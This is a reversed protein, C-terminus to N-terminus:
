RIRGSQAKLKDVINQSSYNRNPQRLIWKNFQSASFGDTKKMDLWTDVYAKLAQQGFPMAFALHDVGLTPYSKAIAFEPHQQKWALAEERSWLLADFSPDNLFTELNPIAAIKHSDDFIEHASQEYSSGTLVAIKQLTSLSPKSFDLSRLTLALEVQLLDDSFLVERNRHRTKSLGGVALDYLGSNLQESVNAYDLPLYLPEVGLAKALEQTFAIDYGVLAGQKNFYSYPAASEGYGIRLTGSKQIEELRNIQTNRLTLNAPIETFVQTTSSSPLSFGQLSSEARHATPKFFALSGLTFTAIILVQSSSKWSWDELLPAFGEEIKQTTLTSISFSSALVLLAFFGSFAALQSYLALGQPPLGLAILAEQLAHLPMLSFTLLSPLATSFFETFGGVTSPLSFTLFSLFLFYGVMSWIPLLAAIIATTRILPSPSRKNFLKEISHILHPLAIFASGTAFCLLWAEKSHKFITRYRYKSVFRLLYPSLILTVFLSSAVFPLLFSKFLILTEAHLSGVRGAMVATVVIPSLRLFSFTIAQLTQTIREIALLPLKSKLTTLAVGIAIIALLILPISNALMGNLFSQPRITSPAFVESSPAISENAFFPYSFSLAFLFALLGVGCICGIFVRCISGWRLGHSVISRLLAAGLYPLVAMKLISLGHSGFSAFHLSYEGFILGLLTGAFLSIFIQGSFSRIFDKM